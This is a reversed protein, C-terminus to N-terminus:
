LWRRWWPRAASELAAIRSRHADLHHQLAAIQDSQRQNWESANALIKELEIGSFPSKGLNVIIPKRPLDTANLRAEIDALRGNLRMTGRDCADLRGAVDGCSAARGRAPKPKKKTM